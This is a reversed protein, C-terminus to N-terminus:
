AQWDGSSALAAARDHRAKVREATAIDEAIMHTALADVAARRVPDPESRAIMEVATEDRMRMAKVIRNRYKGADAGLM